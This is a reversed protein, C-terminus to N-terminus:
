TAVINLLRLIRDEPRQCHFGASYVSRKFHALPESPHQVRTSEPRPSAPRLLWALSAGTVTERIAHM